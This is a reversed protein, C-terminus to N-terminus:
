LFYEGGSQSLYDTIERMLDQPDTYDYPTYLAQNLHYVANDPDPRETPSYMKLRYFAMAQVLELDDSNISFDHKRFPFANDYTGIRYRKFINLVETYEGAALYAGSFGSLADVSDNVSTIYDFADRFSVVADYPKQLRLLTWGCGIYAEPKSDDKSKANEFDQKALDYNNNNYEDWGSKIYSDYDGTTTVDTIGGSCGAIILILSLKFFVRCM